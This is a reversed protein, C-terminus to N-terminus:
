MVDFHMLRNKIVSALGYEGPRITIQSHVKKDQVQLLNPLQKQFEMRLNDIGSITWVALQLTRNAILPHVQGQPNILSTNRPLLLPCVISMKLLLPYWIQSQWTPTVLLLKETQDYSM